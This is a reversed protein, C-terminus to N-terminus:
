LYRALVGMRKLKGVLFAGVLAKILDVGIFPVVGLLFAKGLSLKMFLSLQIMGLLYIVVVGALMSAFISGFGPNTRGELLKGILFAAIIFGFLYGGTPGVLVGYGATGGAFVPLGVCGLLVYVVQSLAGLNAGLVAGALLTFLVQLTVPVPSFPLPIRVWAGAATLAAFLAVLILQRIKVRLGGEFMINVWNLMNTSM